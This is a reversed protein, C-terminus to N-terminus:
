RRPAVSMVRYGCSSCRSSCRMACRSPAVAAGEEVDPAVGHPQGVAVAFRHAFVDHVGARHHDHREGVVAPQDHLALVAMREAAHHELEGGALEIRALGHQVAGHALQGLLGAIAGGFPRAGADQVVGDAVRVFADLDPERAAQASPSRASSWPSTSSTTSTASASRSRPTRSPVTVSAFVSIPSSHNCFQRAPRQDNCHRAAGQRESAWLRPMFTKLRRQGCSWRKSPQNPESSSQADCRSRLSISHGSHPSVAISRSGDAGRRFRDDAPASSTRSTTADGPSACASPQACQALDDFAGLVDALAEGLLRAADVVALDLLAADAAARRSLLCLRQAFLANLHQRQRYGRSKLLRQLSRDLVACESRPLAGTTKSRQKLGAYEECSSYCIRELAKEDGGGGGYPWAPPLVAFLVLLTIIPITMENRM